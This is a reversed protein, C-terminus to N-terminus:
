QKGEIYTLALDVWADVARDDSIDLPPRGFTWSNRRLNVLGGLLMAITAEPDELTTNDGIWRQLLDATRRYSPELVDTLMRERAEAVNPGGLDLVRHIHEENSLEMLVVRAMLTLESRLDGLPLLASVDAARGTAEAHRDIIGAFLAEKSAFHKYVAGGRRTFGAAEEVDGVSTAEFGREAFLRQAADLLRDRTSSTM